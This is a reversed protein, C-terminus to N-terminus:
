TMPSSDSPFSVLDKHKIVDSNLNLDLAEPLTHRRTKKKSILHSIGLGALALLGATATIIFQSSTGSTRNPQAPVSIMKARGILLPAGRNVDFATYSMIKMFYGVFEVEAQVDTGIPLGVPPDAFVFVYPYSKSDDTWGWAEYVTKVKLPNEDADYRLVRRVHLKLHVLEGRYKQPDEWIQSFAVGKAARAKLDAFSETRSWGMLKWYIPMEGTRLPARDTVLDLISKLNQAEAPDKDNPGPVVANAVDSVSEKGTPQVVETAQLEGDSKAIWSWIAPNKVWGSLTWVLILLGILSFVRTASISQGFPRAVHRRM